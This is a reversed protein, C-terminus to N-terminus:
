QRWRQHHHREKLTDCGGQHRGSRSRCLNEAHPPMCGCWRTEKRVSLLSKATKATAAAAVQTPQGASMEDSWTMQSNQSGHQQLEKAMSAAAMTMEPREMLM